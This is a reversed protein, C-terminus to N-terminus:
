DKERARGFARKFLEALGAMLVAVSLGAGRWGWSGNPAWDTVQDVGFGVLILFMASICVLYIKFWRQSRYEGYVLAVFMLGAVFFAAMYGLMPQGHQTFLENVVTLAAGVGLIGTARGKFSDLDLKM